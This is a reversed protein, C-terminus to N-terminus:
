CRRAATSAQMRDPPVNTIIDVEGKELASAARLRRPDAELRHPRGVAAKGEWGWWDRNAEMVLRDDKVWEVFRYAGTGVPKRALEKVGEDTTLRAPPDARGDPGHARAAASRAEQHRHAAHDPNM